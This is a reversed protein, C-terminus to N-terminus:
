KIVLPQVFVEFPREGFHDIDIYHRPAEEKVVYRRMDPDVAHESVYELHNKYFGILETPLTFVALRNISKHGFFGWCYLHNPTFLLVIVIALVGLYKVKVSQMEGKM